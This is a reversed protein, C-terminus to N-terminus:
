DRRQQEAMQKEVEKQIRDDRRAKARRVLILGIVWPWALAVIAGVVVSVLYSQTADAVIRTGDPGNFLVLLVFTALAGLVVGIIHQV